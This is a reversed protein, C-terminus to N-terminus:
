EARVLKFNDLYVNASAQGSPLDAQIFFDRNSVSTVNFYTTVDIYVKNWVTNGGSGTPVLVIRPEFVTTGSQVYTYGVTFNVNTRYDLELYVPGFAPGFDQDTYLQIHERGPELVFGACTTGDRSVGPHEDPNYLILSTDSDTTTNLLNGVEDFREAWINAGTYQVQADITTSREPSLEATGQWATYYPYQVRDDYAGNKKVGAAVRIRQPGEAIVPVRAPLEWVGLDKDNVSVWVDTIRSTSGGQADTATLGVAPIVLYAPVADSKRCGSLLFLPCALVSLTRMMWLPWRMM